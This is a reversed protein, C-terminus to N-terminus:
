SKQELIAKVIARLSEEIGEYIEIDCQQLEDGIGSRDGLDNLIADVIDIAQREERTEEM